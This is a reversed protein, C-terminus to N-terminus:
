ILGFYLNKKKSALGFLQMEVVLGFWLFSSLELELTSGPGQQVGLSRGLSWCRVCSGEGTDGM